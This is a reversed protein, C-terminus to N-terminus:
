QDDAEETMTAIDIDQYSVNGKNAMFCLKRIQTIKPDANLTAWEAETPKRPPGAEQYMVPHACEFCIGPDGPKFERNKEGSLDLAQDNPAGCWPCTMGIHKSTFGDFLSM